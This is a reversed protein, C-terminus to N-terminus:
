SQQASQHCFPRSSLFPDNGDEECDIKEDSGLRHTRDTTVLRVVTWTPLFQPRDVQGGPQLSASLKILYRARGPRIIRIRRKTKVALFYIYVASWDGGLVGCSAM